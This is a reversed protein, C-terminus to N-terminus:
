RSPEQYISGIHEELIPLAIDDCMSELDDALIPNTGRINRAYTRAAHRAGADHTLDLVFYCCGEHKGGPADTGDTRRVIYKGYLGQTKDTV